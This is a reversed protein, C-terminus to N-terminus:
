SHPLWPFPSKVDTLMLQGGCLKKEYKKLKGAINLIKINGSNLVVNHQM